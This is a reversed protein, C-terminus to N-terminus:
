HGIFSELHSLVRCISQQAPQMKALLGSLKRPGMVSWPGPVSDEVEDLVARICWLPVQLQRLSRLRLYDEMDVALADFYGGIEQKEMKNRIVRSCTVTRGVHMSPEEGQFLDEVAALLKEEMPIDFIGSGEYRGPNQEPSLISKILGRDAYAVSRSMVVDGTHLKESLAGCFGTSLVLSCGRVLEVPPETAMGTSLVRVKVSGQYGEWVMFGQLKKKRVEVMHGLYPAIESKMAALVVIFPDTNM